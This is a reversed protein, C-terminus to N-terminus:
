VIKKPGTCVNNSHSEYFRLTEREEGIGGVGSYLTVKIIGRITLTWPARKCLSIDHRCEQYRENILNLFFFFLFHKANKEERTTSDLHIVMQRGYRWDFESGYYEQYLGVYIEQEAPTMRAILETNGNVQDLPYEENGIKVMPLELDEGESEMLEVDGKIAAFNWIDSKRTPHSSLQSFKSDYVVKPQISAAAPASQDFGRSAEDDSSDVKHVVPGKPKELALLVSMIDDQNKTKESSQGPIDM